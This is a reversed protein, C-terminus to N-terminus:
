VAREVEPVDKELARATPASVSNWSSIKVDMPVSNWVEYIRDKNTHFNDYSLEDQIWLLILIAAAMGVALGTINIASFGKNRLVNRYAIKFFNRIM